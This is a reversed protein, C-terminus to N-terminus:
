CVLHERHIYNALKANGRVQVDIEPMHSGCDVIAPIERGKWDLAIERGILERAMDLSDAGNILITWESAM